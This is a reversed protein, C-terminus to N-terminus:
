NTISEIREAWKNLCEAQEDLYLHQDYTQWEGPLKHGLLMEAVHPKTITSFNTRATRRLDHITWHAMDYDRNKRLWQMLIYPLQLTSSRTMMVDSNANTIVYESNPSLLFLEDLLAKTAPVIPRLIPKKTHKGIKHNEPPVTWIMKDFDFDSKKSVRLESNRCAYILCLKLFLKNKPSMRSYRLAEYLMAIEEDDLTRTIQKKQIGIDRKANLDALNNRKVLQLRKAWALTQKANVLLRDAIAPVSKNKESFFLFWQQSTIKDPPINGFRPFVHIEFSRLIAEPNQKNVVCYAEYWMMFIDKFVKAEINNLKETKKVIRPDHGKEVEGKLKLSEERAKKLTVAPYTGIDVRNQKGGLRFRLQFTIKGKKSVRVGLGDRDARELSQERERGSNAKLWADSIAM